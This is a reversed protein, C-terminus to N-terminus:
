VDGAPVTSEEVEGLDLPAGDHEALAPLQAPWVDPPLDDLPWWRTEVRRRSEAESLAAHVPEFREVRLRYYTEHQILVRDSYGHTVTRTAVPEGLAAEEVALGTEEYLERAAAQRPSEGEDIGGGPTQWFRSGPIGPDTDGQLLVFTAPPAGPMTSLVIVRAGRRRNVRRETPSAPM